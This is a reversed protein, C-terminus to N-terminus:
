LNSDQRPYHSDEFVAAFTLTEATKRVDPVSLPVSMEQGNKGTGVNATGSETGSKKVGEPAPKLAAEFHGDTTQLYHEQAVAKSNGIWQCVVHIPFREALETQRTSRMNHWPKQWPTLGARRIIRLLHTGLNKYAGGRNIVYVAGEAAADLAEHLPKVLEPFLPITRSEKGAHHETKPSPVRIRNHEWDIDTWKLASVESPCRLGGYRSLAVLLRWEADPCAEILKDAMERTVFFMRSKDGRVTASIGEFPNALRYVGRRIAAKFIQRARGVHRRITNDGLEGRKMSAIWDEAEAPGIKRLDHTEGFHAVLWRRVQGMNEVTRPKASTQRAIFADIFGGITTDGTTTTRAKVLGVAALKAHINDPLDAVKRTIEEDVTGTIQSQILLEVLVKFTEAQRATARGIRVTKRRGDAAVFLVRKRGGSDNGISAM